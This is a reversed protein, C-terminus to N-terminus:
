AEMTKVAAALNMRALARLAPWQSLAMAAVVTLIAILYTTWEVHLLITYQETEWTRAVLLTYFWGVPLGVILGLLAALLNELMVIGRMERQTLGLARLAALERRREFLNISVTNYVVVLMLALGFLVMVGTFINATAMQQDIQSRIDSILEVSATQPLAFARRKLAKEAEPRVRALVGNVTGPAIDLRPGFVQYLYDRPAYIGQGFPQEVIAVVPARVTISLDRANFAYDMRVTDGLGLDLQKAATRTPYIGPQRVRIARGTEDALRYARSHPPIGSLATDLVKDGHTLTVPVGLTGEAWVVGPWKGIQEVLVDSQPQAFGIGMDYHRIAKFYYDITYESMNVSAVSVVVLAVGLAIGIITFVLRYGQRLLNRLALKWVLGARRMYGALMVALRMGGPPSVVRMAEAPAMRAAGLAPLLAAGLCTAVAIFVGVLAIRGGPAYVQFPLNLFGLYAATFPGSGLQGLVVGILGGVLGLALAYLCYHWAVAARSLGCARLFGIQTRQLRVLRSLVSYIILAAASLFFVPFM